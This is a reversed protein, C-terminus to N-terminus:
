RRAAPTTSAGTVPRAPASTTLRPQDTGVTAARIGVVAPAHLAWEELLPWAASNRAALVADHANSGPGAGPPLDSLAQEASTGITDLHHTAATLVSLQWGWRPQVLDAALRPRHQEGSTVLRAAILTIPEFAAWAEENRQFEAQQHVEDDYPVGSPDTHTDIYSEWADQLQNM